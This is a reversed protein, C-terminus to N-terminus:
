NRQAALAEDRIRDRLVQDRDLLQRLIELGAQLKGLQATTLLPRTAKKGTKKKMSAEHFRNIEVFLEKSDNTMHRRFGHAIHPNATFPLGIAVARLPLALRDTTVSLASTQYEHLFVCVQAHRSGGFKGITGPKRGKQVAEFRVADAGDDNLAGVPQSTVQHHLFDDDPLEGLNTSADEGSIADVQGAGIVVRGTSQDALHEAGDRFELLADEHQLQTRSTVPLAVAAFADFADFGVPCERGFLGDDVSHPLQAALRRLPAAQGHGGNGRLQIGFTVPVSGAAFPGRLEHVVDQLAGSWSATLDASPAAQCKSRAAGLQIVFPPAATQATRNDKGPTGTAAIRSQTSPIGAPARLQRATM